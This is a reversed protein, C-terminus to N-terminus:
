AGPAALVTLSDLLRALDRTEPRGTARRRLFGSRLALAQDITASALRRFARYFLELARCDIKPASVRAARVVGRLFSFGISAIQFGADTRARPVWPEAVAYGDLTECVLTALVLHGVPSERVADTQKACSATLRKGALKTALPGLVPPGGHQASTAATELSRAIFSTPGTKIAFDHADRFTYGPTPAAWGGGPATAVEVRKFSYDYHNCRRSGGWNEGIAQPVFKAHSGRPATVPSAKGQQRGLRALQEADEGVELVSVLHSENPRLDESATHGPRHRVPRPSRM